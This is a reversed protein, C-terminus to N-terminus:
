MQIMLARNNSERVSICEHMCVLVLLGVAAIIYDLTVKVLGKLHTGRVM